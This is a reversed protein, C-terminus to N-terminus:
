ATTEHDHGQGEKGTVPTLEGRIIWTPTSFCQADSNGGNGAPWDCVHNDDAYVCSFYHSIRCECPTKPLRRM